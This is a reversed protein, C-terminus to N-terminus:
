ASYSPLSVFPRIKVKRTCCFCFLFLKGNPIFDYGIGEVQYGSVDTKNLEEPQALSSGYPDVGVVYIGPIKEKLKLAIGVITGGTGVSRVFKSPFNAM